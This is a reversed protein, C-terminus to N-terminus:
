ARERPHAHVPRLSLEEPFFGMGVTVEDFPWEGLIPLDQSAAATAAAAGQGTGFDHTM